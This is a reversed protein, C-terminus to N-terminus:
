QAHELIFVGPLFRMTASRVISLCIAAPPQEFIAMFAAWATHAPLKPICFRKLTLTWYDHRSSATASNSGCRGQWSDQQVDHM